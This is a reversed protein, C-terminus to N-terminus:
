STPWELVSYTAGGATFRAVVQADFERCYFEVLRQNSTKTVMASRGAAAAAATAAGVLGSGLGQGSHHPDVAIFAIEACREWERVAPHRAQVLASALLRPSRVVRGAFSWLDRVRLVGTLPPPAMAIACFGQVGDDASVVLLAHDRAGLVRRYFRLLFPVGMAPAVDDPLARRHIAVVADLDASTASRVPM